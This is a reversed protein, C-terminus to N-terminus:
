GIMKMWDDSNDTQNSNDATSNNDDPEWDIPYFVDIDAHIGVDFDDDFDDEKVKGDKSPNSSLAEKDNDNINDKEHECVFSREEKYGTLRQIINIHCDIDQWKNTTPDLTVCDRSQGGQQRFIGTDSAFNEYSKPKMLESGDQWKFNGEKGMDDLGIFVEENVGYDLLSNVLFTNTEKTKPMALNGKNKKCERQAEWYQKRSDPHAHFTYCKGRFPKIFTTGGQLTQSPCTAALTAAYIPGAFISVIMFIVLALVSM